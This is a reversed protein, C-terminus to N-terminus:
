PESHLRSSEDGRRSSVEHRGTRPLTAPQENHFGVNAREQFCKVLIAALPVIFQMGEDEHGLVNMEQQRRGSVYGELVCDLQDFNSVRMFETADNASFSFNPIAGCKRSEFM